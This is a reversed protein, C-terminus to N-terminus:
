SSSNNIDVIVAAVAIRMLFSDLEVTNALLKKETIKRGNKDYCIKPVCAVFFM